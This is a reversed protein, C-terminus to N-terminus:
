YENSGRPEVGKYCSKCQTSLRGPVDPMALQSEKACDDITNKCDNIFPVYRGEESRRRCCNMLSDENSSSGPIPYCADRPPGNETAFPDGGTRGCPLNTQDNWFYYHNGKGGISRFAARLCIYVLLGRPDKNRIPNALVYGFTNVGGKLGIPDSEVYRGISSDYDRFYNQSKGSEADFLQGPFRNNLKFSAAQIQTQTGTVVQPNENPASAASGGAGTAGSTGFPDSEWRWVAKNVANPGTTAGAVPQSRTMARPTGLHDPHLYFTDVNVPNTNTNTGTNNATTTGTGVIGLPLQTSSGKPRITAM